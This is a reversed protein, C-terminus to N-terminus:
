WFDVEVEQETWNITRKEEASSALGLTKKSDNTFFKASIKVLEHIQHHPPTM